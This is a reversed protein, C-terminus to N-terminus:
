KVVEMRVKTLGQSPSFGIKKALGVSLDAVRHKFRGNPGLDNVRGVASKGTKLNTVRVRTGMPLRRCALTMAHMNYREGTYTRRGHFKGGYYSATGVIVKRRGVRLGSRNATMRKTQDGNGRNADTSEVARAPGFGAPLVLGVAATLVMIARVTIKSITM